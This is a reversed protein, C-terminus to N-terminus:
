MYMGLALHAAKLYVIDSYRFINKRKMNMQLFLLHHAFLSVIGLDVDESGVFTISVYGTTINFVAVMNDETKFVQRCLTSFCDWFAIHVSFFFVGGFCIAFTQDFLCQDKGQNGADWTRVHSTGGINVNIETIVMSLQCLLPLLYIFYASAGVFRYQCSHLTLKAKDTGSLSAVNADLHQSRNTPNLYTLILVYQDSKPVYLNVTFRRQHCLLYSLIYM